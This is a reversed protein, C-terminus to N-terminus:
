QNIEEIDIIIRHWGPRLEPDPQGARHDPGIVFQASDDPWIKADTLGDLAAKSTPSINGPDFRTKTRPQVTVTVHVPCQMPVLGQRRAAWAAMLRVARTRRAKEAWHLRQNSTMWDSSPIALKLTQIM